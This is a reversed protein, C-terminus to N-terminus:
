KTLKIKSDKLLLIVCDPQIDVVKYDDILSDTEVTYVKQSINDYLVANLKDSLVPKNLMFDVRGGEADIAEIRDKAVRQIKYGNLAGGDEVFRTANRCCIQGILKDPMEIYGKYMIPLPVNGISDLVFDHAAAPVAAATEPTYKSFPDRKADKVYADKSEPYEAGKLIWEYKKMEEPSVSPSIRMNTATDSIKKEIGGRTGTVAKLGVVALLTVIWITILAKLVIKEINSKPLLDVMKKIANTIKPVRM